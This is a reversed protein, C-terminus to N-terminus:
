RWRGILLTKMAFMHFQTKHLWDTKGKPTMRAKITLRGSGGPSFTNSVLRVTQMPLTFDYTNLLPVGNWEISFQVGKNNIEPAGGNDVMSFQINIYLHCMFEIQMMGDHLGTYERELVNLWGGGYTSYTLGRFEGGTFVPTGTDVFPATTTFEGEDNYYVGHLAYDVIRDKNVENQPIQTRDIGGNLGSKSANYEDNFQEYDVINADRIHAETWRKM